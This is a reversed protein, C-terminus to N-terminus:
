KKAMRWTSPAFTHVRYTATGVLVTVCLIGHSMYVAMKKASRFLRTPRQWRRGGKSADLSLVEVHKPRIKRKSKKALTSRGYGGKAM